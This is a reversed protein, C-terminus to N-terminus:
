RSGSPQRPIPQLFRSFFAVALVIGGLVRRRGSHLMEHVSLVAALTACEGLYNKGLFYGPYGIKELTAGNQIVIQEGGLVFFVNLVCALALCLFLAQMIDARRDALLSPVVISTVVMVQQVYRVLSSEPKYAWVVSAGAFALCAFLCLIHPPWVLRGSRSSGRMVFIATTM